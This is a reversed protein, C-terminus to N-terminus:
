EAPRGSQPKPGFNNVPRSEKAKAPKEPKLRIPQQKDKPINTFGFPIHVSPAVSMASELHGPQDDFFIHQKLAELVLGKNVGGLFFAGNVMVVWSKLTNLARERSPANRATVISVRLRNVYGPEAKKREEERPRFRQFIARAINLGYHEISQVGGGNKASRDM